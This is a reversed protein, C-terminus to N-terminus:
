AGLTKLFLIVNLRSCIERLGEFGYSPESNEQLLATAGAM